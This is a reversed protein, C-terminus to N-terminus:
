MANSHKIIYVEINQEYLKMWIEKQLKRKQYDMQEMDWSKLVSKLISKSEEPGQFEFNLSVNEDDVLERIEQILGRWGDRGNSASFWDQIALNQIPSIDSVKIGDVSISELKDTYVIIVRVEGM